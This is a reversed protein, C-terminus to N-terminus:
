KKCQVNVWLDGEGVVQEIEPQLHDLYGAVTEQIKWCDFQGSSSSQFSVHMHYHGSFSVAARSITNCLQFYEGNSTRVHECHEPYWTGREAAGAVAGILLRYTQENGDWRATKVTVLLDEKKVAGNTIIWVPFSSKADPGCTQDKPKNCARELARYVDQYLAGNVEAGVNTAQTGIELSINGSRRHVMHDLSISTNGDLSDPFMTLTLFHWDHM